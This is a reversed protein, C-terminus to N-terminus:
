RGFGGVGMGEGRGEGAWERGERVISYLASQTATSADTASTSTVMQSTRLKSFNELLKRTTSYLDETEKEEKPRM